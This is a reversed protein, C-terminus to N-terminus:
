HGGCCSCGTAAEAMAKIIERQRPEEIKEVRFRLTTNERSLSLGQLLFSLHGFIEPFEKASVHVEIESGIEKEALLMEFPTLGNPGIGYIFDFTFPELSGDRLISLRIKKISSVKGKSSSM